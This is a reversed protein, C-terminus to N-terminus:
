LLNVYKRKALTSPLAMAELIKLLVMRLIYEYYSTIKIQMFDSKDKDGM